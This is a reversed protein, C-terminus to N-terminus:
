KEEIKIESIMSKVKDGLKEIITPRNKSFVTENLVMSTASYGHQLDRRRYLVYLVSVQM